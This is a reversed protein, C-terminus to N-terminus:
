LANVEDWILCVKFVIEFHTSKPGFKICKSKKKLIRLKKLTRQLLAGHVLRSLGCQNLDISPLAININSCDLSLSGLILVDKVQVLNKYYLFKAHFLIYGTLFFLKAEPFFRMETTRLNLYFRVTELFLFSSLNNLFTAKRM